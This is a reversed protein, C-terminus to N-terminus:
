LNIHSAQVKQVVPSLEPSEVGGRSEKRRWSSEVADEVDGDDSDSDAADQQVASRSGSARRGPTTVAQLECIVM